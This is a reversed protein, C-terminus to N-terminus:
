RSGKGRVARRVVKIEARTRSIWNLLIYCPRGYLAVTYLVNYLM